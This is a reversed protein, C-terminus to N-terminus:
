TGNVGGTDLFYANATDDTFVASMVHVDYISDGSYADPSGRFPKLSLQRQWDEVTDRQDLVCGGDFLFDQDGSTSSM